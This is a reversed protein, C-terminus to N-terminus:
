FHLSNKESQTCITLFFLFRVCLSIQETTCSDTCEDALLAFAGAENCQAVLSRTIQDGLINIMENQIIPSLYKGKAPGSALHAALDPDSQSRYELIAFYNSELEFHGRLPINQKACLAITEFLIGLIKRNIQVQENHAKSIQQCINKEKNTIISIFKGSAEVNGHHPSGDRLHRAIVSGINKWDNTPEASLSKEKSNSRGFLM